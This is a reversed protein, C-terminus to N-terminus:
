VKYNKNLFLYKNRMYTITNLKQQMMTKNKQALQEIDKLFQERVSASMYKRADRKLRTCYFLQKGQDKVSEGGGLASNFIAHLNNIARRTPAYNYPLLSKPMMWLGFKKFGRWAAYGIGVLPFFSGVALGLRQQKLIRDSNTLTKDGRKVLIEVMKNLANKMKGLGQMATTSANNAHYKAVQSYLLVVDLLPSAVDGKTKAYSFPNFKVSSANNWDSGVAELLKEVTGLNLEQAEKKIDINKLKGDFGINKKYNEFISLFRSSLDQKSVSPGDSSFAKVMQDSGNQFLTIFKEINEQQDEANININKGNSQENNLGITRKFIQWLPDVNNNYVDGGLSKIHNEIAGRKKYIYYGTVGAALYGLWNRSFHGPMKAYGLNKVVLTKHQQMLLAIIKLQDFINSITINESNDDGHFVYSRKIFPINKYVALLEKLTEKSSINDHLVDRYKNLEYLSVFYNDRLKELAGINGKVEEDAKKGSFWHKLSRHLYYSVTRYKQDQWYNLHIDIIEIANVIQTHLFNSMKTTINKLLVYKQEDSTQAGDMVKNIQLMFRNLQNSNHLANIADCMQEYDTKVLNTASGSKEQKRGFIFSSWTGKKFEPNKAQLGPCLLLVLFLRFSFHTSIRM